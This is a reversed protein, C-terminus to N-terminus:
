RKGKAPLANRADFGEVREPLPGDKARLPVVHACDTACLPCGLIRDAETRVIVCNWECEPCELCCFDSLDAMATNQLHHM